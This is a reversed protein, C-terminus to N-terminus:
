PYENTLKHSDCFRKAVEGLFNSKPKGHPIIEDGTDRNVLGYTYLTTIIEPRSSIDFGGKKWRQIIQRIHFAALICNTSDQKLLRIVEADSKYNPLWRHYQREIFYDSSTDKATDIIWKATNVRIQALGI